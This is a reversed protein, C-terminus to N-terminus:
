RIASILQSPFILFFCVFLAVYICPVFVRAVVSKSCLTAYVCFLSEHSLVLLTRLTPRRATSTFGLFTLKSGTATRRFLLFPSLFILM